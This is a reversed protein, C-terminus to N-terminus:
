KVLWSGTKKSGIREIVGEDLLEKMLMQVARRSKNMMESLEAQTLSPNEKLLLLLHERGSMMNKQAKNQAKDHAYNLNWLTLFFNYGDTYFVPKLEEKYREEAEYADLIKKFGSGRREMLRMRGFFM